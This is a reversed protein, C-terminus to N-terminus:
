SAVAEVAQARAQAPAKCRVAYFRVSHVIYWAMTNLHAHCQRLVLYRTGAVSKNGSCFARDNLVPNASQGRLFFREDGIKTSKGALLTPTYEVSLLSNISMPVAVM